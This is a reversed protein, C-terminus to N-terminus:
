FGHYRRLLYGMEALLCRDLHRLHRETDSAQPFRQAKTPEPPTQPHDKGPGPWEGIVRWFEYNMLWESAWPIISEGIGMSFDWEQGGPWFLCLRRAWTSRYLHPIYSDPRSQLAPSLVYVDPTQSKVEIDEFLGGHNFVVAVEYEQGGPKLKGLWAVAWRTQYWIRFGPFHTTVSEIHRRRVSSVWHAEEYEREFVGDSLLLRPM